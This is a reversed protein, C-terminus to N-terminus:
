MSLQIRRWERKRGNKENVRSEKKWAAAGRVGVEGYVGDVARRGLCIGGRVVECGFLGREERREEVVKRTHCCEREWLGSRVRAHTVTHPRSAGVDTPTCIIALGWDPQTIGIGRGRAVELESEDVTKRVYTGYIQKQRVVNRSHLM